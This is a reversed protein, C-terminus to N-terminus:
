DKWRDSKPEAPNGSCIMGKPLDKLVVSGAVVVSEEGILVGPAIFVAAGIWAGDCVSIPGGLFAFEPDRYDHNGTCLFSRQSVCAHSGIRVEAYNLIFVEEGIWSHSGIELRWPLYINVRPKFVVGEGIKAGFLRLLTRKLASPWPIASLFFVIKCFYWTAEVFVSRGRDLTRSADFLDLRMRTMPDDQFSYIGLHTDPFKFNPEKYSRVV